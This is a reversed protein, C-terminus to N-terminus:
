SLFVPACLLSGQRIAEGVPRLHAEGSSVFLVMAAGIHSVREVLM